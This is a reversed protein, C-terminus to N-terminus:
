FGPKNINTNRAVMRNFLVLSMEPFIEWDEAYTPDDAFIVLIYQTTGDKTAIFAADQRSMSTWGVKSAFNVQTIPLFEGLFGEISNYQEQRWIEPRLDRTLLQQMKQSYKPSVAQETFIEYMLRAAQDTTIKNRIPRDPNGRMQLERGQPGDLNLYPIPFNKQSINIDEYGAQQFFRNLSERQHLWLKYAEGELNFGSETQTLRDIIRSAPENDSKQIMKYLESDFAAEYPLYKQNIQAYLIVMWFLKAVSAPFRLQKNQYGAFTPYKPNSLDILSISLPQTPLGQIKAFNVLEDVMAQLQSSYVLKPPTVVNYELESIEPTDRIDLSDLKPNLNISPKFSVIPPAIVFDRDTLYVIALGTSIIGLAVGTVIGTFQVQSLQNM